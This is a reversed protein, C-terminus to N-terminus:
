TASLKQRKADEAELQRELREILSFLMRSIAVSLNWVKFFAKKDILGLNICRRLQNQSEELSGNAM